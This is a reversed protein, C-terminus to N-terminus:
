KNRQLLEFTFVILTQAAGDLPRNRGLEGVVSTLICCRKCKDVVTTQRTQQENDSGILNYCLWKLWWM